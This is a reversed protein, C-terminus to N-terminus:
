HLLSYIPKMMLLLWPWVWHSVVTAEQWPTVLTVPWDWLEFTVTWISGTTKFKIGKKLILRSNACSITKKKKAASLLLHASNPPSSSLSTPPENLFFLMTPVPFPGNCYGKKSRRRYSFPLTWPPCKTSLTEYTTWCGRAFCPLAKLTKSLELSSLKGFTDEEIAVCRKLIVGNQM